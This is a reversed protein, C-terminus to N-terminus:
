SGTKKKRLAVAIASVRAINRPDGKAYRPPLTLSQLVQRYPDFGAQFDGVAASVGPGWRQTGVDVTKRRWKETGAQQVGKEFLNKSISEQIGAKYAGAAKITNGAWDKGTTQVGEAFDQSRQPTVRAWKAAIAASDKIEM